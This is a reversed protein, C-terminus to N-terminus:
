RQHDPQASLEVGSELILKGHSERGELQSHAESAQHLPFRSGVTVRLTGDVVRDQLDRRATSWREPPDAALWFSSVRLCRGYLEDPHIPVPAGSSEGFYVLHGYLGLV